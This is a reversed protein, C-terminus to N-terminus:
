IIYSIYIYIHYICLSVFSKGLIELFVVGGACKELFVTATDFSFVHFSGPNKSFRSFSMVGRFNLMAGLFLCDWFSVLRGIM